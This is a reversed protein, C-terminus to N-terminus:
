GRRIIVTLGEAQDPLQGPQLELRAADARARTLIAGAVGPEYAVLDAAGLWRAQRLTLDDPDDGTVTFEFTGGAGDTGGALWGDVRAASGADLPDLVGGEALAADLARRREAGGAWRARMAGRGAQL